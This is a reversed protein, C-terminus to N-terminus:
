SSEGTKKNKTKQKKSPKHYSRSTTLRNAQLVVRWKWEEMEREFDTTLMQTVSGLILETKNQQCYYILNQVAPSPPNIKEYPLYVSSSKGDAKKKM